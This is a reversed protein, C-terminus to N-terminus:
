IREAVRLKASRARPNREIEEDSPAQPKRNVAAFPKLVQGYFNTEVKGATNGSNIFNKVLRDELSHYTLVVLRGNEKLIEACSELLIELSRLEQNVEIRLAQFVQSLYKNRKDKKHLVGEIIEVLQQTTEIPQLKRQQVIAQALTKANKIEGYKGFIGQLQESSYENLVNHASLEADKDMRLDIAADWRFSFGREGANLQHSSVGLDALIGDIPVAKHYHLFHRIWRYDHHVLTLREDDIENEIADSDRDFAILKGKPGLQELIAKSHGGGGFTVDVYCGSPNINLGALCENLMVPIHYSSTLTLTM